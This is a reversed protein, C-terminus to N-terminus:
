LKMTHHVSPAIYLPICMCPPKYMWWFWSDCRTLKLIADLLCHYTNRWIGENHQLIVCNFNDLCVTCATDASVVQRSSGKLHREPGWEIHCTIRVFWCAERCACVRYMAGPICWVMFSQNLTSLWPSTLDVATYGWKSIMDVRYTLNCVYPQM